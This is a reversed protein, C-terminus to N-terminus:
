YILTVIMYIQFYNLLYLISLLMKLDNYSTNLFM